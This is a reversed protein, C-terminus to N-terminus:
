VDAANVVPLHALADPITRGLEEVRYDANSELNAYNIGSAQIRRMEPSLVRNIGNRTRINCAGWFGEMTPYNTDYGHVFQELGSVGRLTVSDTKEPLYHNLGTQNEYGGPFYLYIDYDMIGNVDFPQQTREHEKVITVLYHTDSAADFEIAVSEESTGEEAKEKALESSEGRSESESSSSSTTDTDSIGFHAAVSAEASVGAYEGSVTVSSDASEDQTHSHEASQSHERTVDLTVGKTIASTFSNTLSVAEEYAVHIPDKTDNRVIKTKADDSVEVNEMIKKAGYALNSQDPDWRPSSFVVLEQAQPKINFRMGSKIPDSVNIVRWGSPPYVVAAPYNWVGPATNANGRLDYIMAAMCAALKYQQQKMLYSQNPTVDSM